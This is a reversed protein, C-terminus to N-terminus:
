GITPDPHRPARHPAASSRSPLRIPLGGNARTIRGALLVLSPAATLGILAIFWLQGADTGMAFTHILAAIWALLTFRHISRWRRPGIRTRVYYSLGLAVFAWGAIIGLSTPVTKYSSLFPISIDGLTPKLYTDGLLTLGHIAIAVMVSLSLVEHYVRRDAAPRKTFRGAMLLGFGVSVSALVMATIGAGRSLIWFLHTSVNTSMGSM